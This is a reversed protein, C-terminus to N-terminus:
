RKEAKPEIRPMTIVPPLQMIDSLQIAKVGVVRFLYNIIEVQVEDPMTKKDKWMKEIKAVDKSEYLLSGGISIGGVEPMYNSEFIFQIELVDSKKGFMEMKLRKVGTVRPATRIQMKQNLSGKKECSISTFNVTLVPMIGGEQKHLFLM